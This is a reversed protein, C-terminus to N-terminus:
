LTPTYLFRRPRSRFGAPKTQPCSPGGWLRFVPANEDDCARPMAVDDSTESALRMAIRDETSCRRRILAGVECGRREYVPALKLEFLKLPWARSGAGL